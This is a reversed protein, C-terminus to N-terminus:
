RFHRAKGRCECHIAIAAEKRVQGSKGSQLAPLGAVRMTVRGDARCSRIECLALKNRKVRAVYLWM